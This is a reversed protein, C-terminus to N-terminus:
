TCGEWCEIIYNVVGTKRLYTYAEQGNLGNEDELAMYFQSKYLVDSTEELSLGQSEMLLHVIGPTIMAVVPSISKDM